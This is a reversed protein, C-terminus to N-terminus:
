FTNIVPRDRQQLTRSFRYLHYHVACKLAYARAILPSRRAHVVNRFRHAYEARLVPDRVQVMVLAFLAFAELWFRGHRLRRLWPRESAFAQWGRDLVAHGDLYFGDVRDFFAEPEYLEAMLQTYGDRLQAGSMNLPVVNTGYEPPDATDLRGEAALRSFLPTRPIASLMSITAIPIRAEALFRAQEAFVAPDDNDFGVIMGAFVEMGADEIRRVKEVLTGGARVNQLKRTERLSEERPSEIGM